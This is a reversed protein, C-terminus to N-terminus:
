GRELPALTIAVWGSALLVSVATTVLVILARKPRTRVEPTRAADLITLTPTDRMEQVRMDENQATLLMFVRRQIEANLALRSGEQKLTPLKSIEGNMAGIEAEVERLSASGPRTYSSMYSRRVELDLKRAIIDAMSGVATAETSAVIRNKQEYATLVSEAEAMRTKVETLRKDLFERTRKARTNVSERNFRDLGAVLDNTMAAARQPDTDEVSVSVVGTPTVGVRVHQGLERLTTEVGKTRYRRSLDYTAVLPECVTRSKLIEIYIDSPTTSSFLGLKSLANNEIMASM